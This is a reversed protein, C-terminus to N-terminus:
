HREFADNWVSSKRGWSSSLREAIEEAETKEVTSTASTTSASAVFADNTAQAAEEATTRAVDQATRNLTDATRGRHILYLSKIAAVQKTPDALNDELSFEQALQPFSDSSVFALVEDAPIEATLAQIGAQRQADVTAQTLPQVSQRLEQLEQQYQAQMQRMENQAATYAAWAGAAAPDYEKWESFAAAAVEQNGQEWAARTAAAASAADQIQDLGVPAPRNAQEQLANFREELVTRLEGIENGQRDIFADKDALRKRLTELEVAVDAPAETAEPTETAEPEPTEPETAAFRGAEDRAQEPEAAPEDVTVLPADPEAASIADNAAAKFDFDPSLDTM